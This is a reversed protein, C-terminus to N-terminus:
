PFGICLGDSASKMFLLLKVVFVSCLFDLWILHVSNRSHALVMSSNEM